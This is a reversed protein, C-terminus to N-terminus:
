MKVSTTPSATTPLEWLELKMSLDPKRGIDAGVGVGVDVGVGVGVGIGVAAGIDVDVGEVGGDVEANVADGM